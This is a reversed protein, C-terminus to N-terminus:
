GRLVRIQQSIDDLKQKVERTAHGVHRSNEERIAMEQQQLKAIHKEAAMIQQEVEIVKLDMEEIEKCCRLALAAESAARDFEEALSHNLSNQTALDADYRRKDIARHLDTVRIYLGRISNM